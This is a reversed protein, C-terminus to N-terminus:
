YSLRWIRKALASKGEQKPRSPDALLLLSSEEFALDIVTGSAFSLAALDLGKPHEQNYIRVISKQPRSDEEGFGYSYAGEYYVVVVTKEDRSIFRLPPRKLTFYPDPSLAVKELEPYSIQFLMNEKNEASELSAKVLFSKENVAALLTSSAFGHKAWSTVEQGLRNDKVSFLKGYKSALVYYDSRLVLYEKALNEDAKKSNQIFRGDKGLFQLSAGLSKLFSVEQKWEEKPSLEELQANAFLLQNQRNKKVRREAKAGINFLGVFALALVVYAVLCVLFLIAIWKLILLM